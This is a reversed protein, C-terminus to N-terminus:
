MIFLPDGRVAEFTKGYTYERHKNELLEELGPATLTRPKVAEIIPLVAPPAPDTTVLTRCDLRDFLARHAEPSNRPSTLLVTEVTLLSGQTVSTAGHKTSVGYGAKVAALLVATYRLDNPGVYTLIERNEGELKGPGLQDVLWWALGNVVNALQAYTITDFGSDKPWVGFAADPRDGALRDVICPTLHDQSSASCAHETAMAM